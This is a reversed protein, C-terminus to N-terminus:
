RHAVLMNLFKGTNEAKNAIDSLTACMKDYFFLTM